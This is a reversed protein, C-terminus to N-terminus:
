PQLVIIRGRGLRVVGREEDAQLIENVTARTTGALKALEAQTLPITVDGDDERYVRALELLRRHVRREAPLYLAEELAANMRRLEAFATAGLVLTEAAELARVTATRRGRASLLAAEGFCEGTGRVALMVSEVLVAFRGTAVLHLTDAPDDHHVVVEGRAFRRREAAALVRRADDEPVGGLLQFETM